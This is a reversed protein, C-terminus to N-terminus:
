CILEEVLIASLALFFIDVDKRLVGVSCNVLKVRSVTQFCQIIISEKTRIGRGQKKQWLKSKLFM